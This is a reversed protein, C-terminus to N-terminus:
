MEMPDEFAFPSPPCSAELFKRVTRVMGNTLSKLTDQFHTNPVLGSFFKRAVMEHSNRYVKQKFIPQNERKVKWGSVAETYFRAGSNNAGTKGLAGLTLPVLFGHDIGDRYSTVSVSWKGQVFTMEGSFYFNYPETHFEPCETTLHGRHNPPINHPAIGDAKAFPVPFYKPLKRRNIKSTEQLIPDQVTPACVTKYIKEFEDIFALPVNNLIVWEQPEKFTAETVPRATQRILNLPIRRLMDVVRQQLHQSLFPCMGAAHLVNSVDEATNNCTDKIRMWLMHSGEITGERRYKQNILPVVGHKLNYRGRHYRAYMTDYPEFLPEHSNQTAIAMWNDLNPHTEHFSVM